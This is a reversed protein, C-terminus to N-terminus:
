KNTKKALCHQLCEQGRIKNKMEDKVRAGPSRDAGDRVKKIGSDPEKTLELTPELIPHFAPISPLRHHM